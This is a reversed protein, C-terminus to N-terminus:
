RWGNVFLFYNFSTHLRTSWSNFYIGWLPGELYLGLTCVVWAVIQEPSRSGAESPGAARLLLSAHHPTEARRCSKGQPYMYQFQPTGAESKRMEALTWSISISKGKTKINQVMLCLLGQNWLSILVPKTLSSPHHGVREELAWQKHQPSPLPTEAM